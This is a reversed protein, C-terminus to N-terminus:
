GKFKVGSKKCIKEIVTKGSKANMLLSGASTVWGGAFYFGKLGPLMYDDNLGFMTSLVSLKKNPFNDFGETGHMFREWTCLTIVDVAEIDQELYSFQQELLDIVQKAIREKEANYKEKDSLISEFYSYKSFLEVKIVSKGEPAMGHSHSYIQMDLHDTKHGAIEAQENLFMIMSSPFGSLDRKVGLFVQVAFPRSVDEKPKCFDNIKKNAYKGKLMHTITKRGDANSIIYDARHVTGDELLVGVAHNNETIIKDVKKNFHVVGGLQRYREAMNGAITGSGGKPWDMGGNDEAIHKSLYFFLPINPLSYNLLPFAKKLLPHSFKKSYSELTDKFYKSRKIFYPMYRVKEWFTGLTVASFPDGKQFARIGNIYDDIAASDPPSLKKMHASLKELNYYDHFYEGNSDVVSVCTNVKTKECPVVGLAKWFDYIKTGAIFGGFHHLCGDFIYGKREWSTCQGGAKSHAEYIEAEFGNLRAYIGASLGGMGAGIIIIKKM